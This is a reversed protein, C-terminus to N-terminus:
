SAARCTPRPAGAVSTHTHVVDFRESRLIDGLQRFAVVDRLGGYHDLALPM